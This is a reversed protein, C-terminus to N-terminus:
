YNITLVKTYQDVQGSAYKTNVQLKVNRVNPDFACVKNSCTGFYIQKRIYPKGNYSKYPQQQSPIFSGEVGRKIGIHGMTDANYTLNFYIYQINNFNDPSEFDVFMARRDSRVYPVVNVGGTGSTMWITGTRPDTDALVPAPLTSSLLAAFAAATLIEEVFVYAWIETLLENNM